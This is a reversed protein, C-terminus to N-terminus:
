HLLRARVSLNSDVFLIGSVDGPAEADYERIRRHCAKSIGIIFCQALDGLLEGMPIVDVDMEFTLCQTGRSVAEGAKGAEFQPKVLAVLRSTPSEAELLPWIAPLVLKLSIFSVDVVVLDFAARPLDDSTLHRANMGEINVVRADSALSSHLQDHGCDVCVASAAGAKLLADTFGGTSAGVDLIHKGQVHAALGFENLAGNLKAGARSLSAIGM